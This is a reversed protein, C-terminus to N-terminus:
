TEDAVADNELDVSDKVIQEILTMVPSAGANDKYDNFQVPPTQGESVQSLASKNIGKHYYDKLKMLAKKLIDQSARQDAVVTQYAKNESERNQGAKKIEVQANAIETQAGM